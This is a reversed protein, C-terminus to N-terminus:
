GIIVGGGLVEEDDYFVASQGPTIARQSEKFIVKIKDDEIKIIAPAAESRYRIKVSVSLPNKAELEFEPNIWAVDRVTMEKKFIEEDSGVILENKEIDFGIVYLPQKDLKENSMQCKVNPNIIQEIGKRQGITYNILGDHKGVINGSKDVIKGPKFYEAPIQRRLFDRYDKDMIFCVEQSERKEAVPLGWGKALARVHEKTYEGVPFIVHSLQEQDLQHLFYSQDKKSDIGKLLKYNTNTSGRIIRAYHGTAVYQCGVSKAFDLFWGFKIKKNCVVCPNPTRLNKYEDVFYDAVDLKFQERADILYVPIGIKEAVRKADEVSKQDCCANDRSVGCTADSWFKMMFGIVDYGQDVLIKAAVSSDVGGSLGVAVKIKNKENM